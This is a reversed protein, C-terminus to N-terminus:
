RNSGSSVSTLTAALQPVQLRDTQSGAMDAMLTAKARESRVPAVVTAGAKLLRQRLASGSSPTSSGELGTSCDWVPQFWAYHAPLSDAYSTSETVHQDSAPISRPFTDVLAHACRCLRRASTAPDAVSSLLRAQSLWQPTSDIWLLVQVCILIAYLAPQDDCMDARSVVAKRVTM